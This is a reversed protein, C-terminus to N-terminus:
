EGRPFEFVVADCGECALVSREPHGHVSGPGGCCNRLTTEVVDGGCAPCDRLFTRLPGAAAARLGAPLERDALTEVAATEAVAVARSLWVDRDGAVLVRGDHFAGEAPGPAAAAARSALREGSLERLTATRDEWATRFSPELRLRDDNAELTGAEVLAATMAEPDVDGALSDSGVGDPSEHGFDVPLPEVLPPAFRPTGPVVYGRLRVLLCGAAVVAGGATRDRRSVALGAVAVIVLNVVTCPWCRNEGTYAPERLRDLSRRLSTPDM